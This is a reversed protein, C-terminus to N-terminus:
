HLPFFYNRLAKQHTLLGPERSAGQGRNLYLASFTALSPKQWFLEPSSLLFIVNFSANRLSLLPFSCKWQWSLHSPPHLPSLSFLGVRGVRKPRIGWVSSVMAFPYFLVLPVFLLSFWLPKQKVKQRSTQFLSHHRPQISHLSHTVPRNDYPMQDGDVQM